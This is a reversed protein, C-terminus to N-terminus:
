RQVTELPATLPKFLMVVAFMSKGAFKAVLVTLTIAM